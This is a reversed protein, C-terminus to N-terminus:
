LANDLLTQWWDQLPNLSPRSYKPVVFALYHNIQDVVFKRLTWPECDFQINCLDHGQLLEAGRQKAIPGRLRVEFRFWPHKLQNDPEFVRQRPNLHKQYAYLQCSGRKSNGYYVGHEMIRPLVQKGRVDRIFPSKIFRKYNHPLSQELIEDFPVSDTFCDLHLDIASINGRAERTYNLIRDLDLPRLANLASDSFSLGNIQVLHRNNFPGTPDSHIAVLVANDTSKLYYSTGYWKLKKHIQKHLHQESLNFLGHMLENIPIATSFTLNLKDVGVVPKM